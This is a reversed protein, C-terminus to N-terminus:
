GNLLYTGLNLYAAFFAWILYPLQIYAAKKDVYGFRIIMVIILGILVLLWIFAALRLQLAFYLPSWIVNVILQVAYCILAQKTQPTKKLYIRAASIGMLVYLVTWVVPFVWPPPMLPPDTLGQVSKMGGAFVSSLTGAALSILISLVYAKIKTKREAKKSRSFNDEM